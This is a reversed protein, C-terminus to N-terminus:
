SGKTKNTKFQWWELAFFQLFDLCITFLTYINLKLGSWCVTKVLRNQGKDQKHYGYDDM